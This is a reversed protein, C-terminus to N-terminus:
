AGVKESRRENQAQYHAPVFVLRFLAWFTGTHPVRSDHTNTRSTVFCLLSSAVWKWAMPLCRCMVCEITVNHCSDSFLDFFLVNQLSFNRTHTPTHFIVIMRVIYHTRRRGVRGVREVRWRWVSVICLLSLILCRSTCVFYFLSRWATSVVRCANAVTNQQSYLCRFLM